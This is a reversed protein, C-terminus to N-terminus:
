TATLGVRRCHRAEAQRRLEDRSLQVRAAIRPPVRPSHSM